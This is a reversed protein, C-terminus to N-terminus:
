NVQCCFLWIEPSTHQLKFDTIKRYFRNDEFMGLLPGCGLTHVKHGLSLDVKFLCFSYFFNVSIYKLFKELLRQSDVKVFSHINVLKIFYCLHIRTM